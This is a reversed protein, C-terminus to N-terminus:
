AARRVEELHWPTLIRPGDATVAVTHEFHAALSGDQSYFSAASSANQSCWAATYREAFDRQKGPELIM